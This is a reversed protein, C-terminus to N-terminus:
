FCGELHLNQSYLIDLSVYVFNQNLVELSSVVQSIYDYIPPRTQNLLKSSFKALVTLKPKPGQPMRSWVKRSM